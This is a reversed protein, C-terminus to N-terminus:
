KNEPIVVNIFSAEITETDTNFRHVCIWHGSKLDSITLKEFKQFKREKREKGETKKEVDNDATKEMSKEFKPMKAMHTMPNIHIKNNKGDADKITIIMTDANIDTITGMTVKEMPQQGPFHQKHVNKGRSFAPLSLFAAFVVLAIKKSISKM